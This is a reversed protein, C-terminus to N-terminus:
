ASRKRKPAKRPAQLLELDQLTRVGGQRALGLLRELLAATVLADGGARHRARNEFGFFHTLSDLGWSEVAPVLRRALRVTCLVPGDLRLFRARRVAATVFRWDYRANHAVFIRGALLGLIEDAIESFTPAQEVMASTIGTIRTVWPDVPREPNVLSDFVLERRGGHVIVVAIETIRDERAQRAGSTEVDVVAFGCEEILPSGQAAAVLSWRGDPLRRVRPDAGLLAVALRDAVASPATPLALVDRALREASLPGTGLAVIARDVLTGEPQAALGKM